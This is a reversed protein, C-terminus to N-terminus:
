RGVTRGEAVKRVLEFEYGKQVGFSILKQKKKFGDKEKIERDKKVLLERLTEIYEEEDIEEIGLQIFHDPVQKRQLEYSIKVRGWKNIRFKGGAFARAFREENLFNEETLRAIIKEAKDDDIKWQRLKDMVESVCREQYACYSCLKDFILDDDKM